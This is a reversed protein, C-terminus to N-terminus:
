PVWVAARAHESVLTTSTKLDIVTPDDGSYEEAVLLYRGDRGLGIQGGDNRLKIRRLRHTPSVLFLPTEAHETDGFATPFLLGAFGHGEPVYVFDHPSHNVAMTLRPILGKPLDEGRMERYAYTYSMLLTDQSAGREHRLDGVVDLGPTDGAEDKTARRAVSLWKGSPGLELVTCVKPIGWDPSDLGPISSGDHLRYTVTGNTGKTIADDNIEELEVVRLRGSTREIWMVRVDGAPLGGIASPAASRDSYAAAFIRSGIAYYVRREQTDWFVFKPAAPLDLFVRKQQSSASWFIWQCDAHGEAFYSLIPGVDRGSRSNGAFAGICTGLCVALVAALDNFLRRCLWKMCLWDIFNFIYIIRKM